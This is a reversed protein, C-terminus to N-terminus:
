ALDNRSSMSQHFRTARCCEAVSFGDRSTTRSNFTSRSKRTCHPRGWEGCRGEFDSVREIQCSIWRRIVACGPVDSGLIANTRVVTCTMDNLHGADVVTRSKGLMPKAPDLVGDTFTNVFITECARSEMERVEMQHNQNWPCQLVARGVHRAGNVLGRTEDYGVTSESKEVQAIGVAGSVSIAVPRRM